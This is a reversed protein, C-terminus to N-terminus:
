IHIGKDNLYDAYNIAHDYPPSLKLSGNFEKALKSLNDMWDNFNPTNLSALESNDIPIGQGFKKRCAMHRGFVQPFFLNTKLQIWIVVNEKALNAQLLNIKLPPIYAAFAPSDEEKDLVPNIEKLIKGMNYLYYKQPKGIEDYCYTRTSYSFFYWAKPFNNYNHYGISHYIGTIQSLREVEKLYLDHDQNVEFIDDDLSLLFLENKAGLELFLKTFVKLSTLEKIPLKLEWTGFVEEEMAVWCNMM